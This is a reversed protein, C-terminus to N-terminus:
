VTLQKSFWSWLKDKLVSPNDNIHFVYRNQIRVLDDLDSIDLAFGHKLFGQAFLKRLFIFRQLDYTLYLPLNGCFYFCELITSKLNTKFIKAFFSNYTFELNSLEKQNLSISTCGYLLKQLGHSNILKILINLPASSGLRGLITNASIFYKSKAESWSCEFSSARIIDIGLFKLSDVAILLTNQVHLSINTNFRPGIRIYNCKSINIPLDLSSFVDVCVQIMSQLDVVSISILVLDDAYM